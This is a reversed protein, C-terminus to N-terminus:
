GSPSPPHIVNPTPRRTNLVNRHAESPQTKPQWRRRPLPVANDQGAEAAPPGVEPGRPYSRVIFGRVRGSFNRPPLRLTPVATGLLKHSLEVEDKLCQGSDPEASSAKQSLLTLAITEVPGHSTPASLCFTWSTSWWISTRPQLPSNTPQNM